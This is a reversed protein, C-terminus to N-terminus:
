RHVTNNIAPLKASAPITRSCHDRGNTVTYSTGPPCPINFATGVAAVCMDRSGRFNRRYVTGVTGVGPVSVRPCPSLSVNEHRSPRFCRIADNNSVQGTYGPPCRWYTGTAVSTAPLTLGLFAISASLFATSIFYKMSPEGKISEHMISNANGYHCFSFGETEKGTTLLWPQM